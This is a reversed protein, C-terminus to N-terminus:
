GERVGFKRSKALTDEGRITQTRIPKNRLEFNDVGHLWLSILLVDVGSFGVSSLMGYIHTYTQFIRYVFSVTEQSTFLETILWTIRRIYVVEAPGTGSQFSSSM